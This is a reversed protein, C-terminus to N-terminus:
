KQNEGVVVVTPPAAHMLWATSTTNVPDKIFSDPDKRGCKRSNSVQRGVVRLSLSLPSVSVAFPAFKDFNHKIMVRVLYM